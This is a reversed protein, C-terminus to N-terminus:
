SNFFNNVDRISNVKTLIVFKNLIEMQIKSLKYDREFSSSKETDAIIPSTPFELNKLFINSNFFTKQIFNVELKGCSGPNFLCQKFPFKM